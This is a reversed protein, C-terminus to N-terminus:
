RFGLKRKRSRRNVLAAFGLGALITCTGPEPLPETPLNLEEPIAAGNLANPEKPLQISKPKIVKNNKRIQLGYKTGWWNPDLDEVRADYGAGLFSQDNEFKVNLQAALAELVEKPKMAAMDPTVNAQVREQKNGVMVELKLIGDSYKEGDKKPALLAFKTEPEEGMLTFNMVAASASVQLVATLLLTLASGIGLLRSRNM